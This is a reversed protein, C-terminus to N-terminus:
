SNFFRSVSLMCVKGYLTQSVSGCIAFLKCANSHFLFHPNRAECHLQIRNIQDIFEEEQTDKDRLDHFNLVWGWIITCEFRRRKQRTQGLSRWGLHGWSRRVEPLWMENSVSVYIIKCGHTQSVQSLYVLSETIVRPCHSGSCTVKGKEVMPAYDVFFFPKSINTLNWVVCESDALHCSHCM